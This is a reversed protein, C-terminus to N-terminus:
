FQFYIFTSGQPSHMVLIGMFLLSALVAQGVQWTWNAGQDASVGWRRAALHALGHLWLPLSYWLSQLFFFRALVLDDAKAAGPWLTFYHVLWHLDTERFM